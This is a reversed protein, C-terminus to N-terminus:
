VGLTISGGEGIISTNGVKTPLIPVTLTVVVLMIMLLINVIKPKDDDIIAPSHQPM